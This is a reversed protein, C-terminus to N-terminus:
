SWKQQLEAAKARCKEAQQAAIRHRMREKKGPKVAAMEDYKEAEDLYTQIREQRAEDLQARAADAKEHDTERNSLAEVGKAALRGVARGQRRNISM